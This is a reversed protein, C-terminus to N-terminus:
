VKRRAKAVFELLNNMADSSLVIREGSYTEDNPITLVYEWENMEGTQLSVWVSDGLYQPDLKM